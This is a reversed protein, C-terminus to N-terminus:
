DNAHILPMVVWKDLFPLMMGKCIIDQVTHTVFNEEIMCIQIGLQLSNVPEQFFADICKLTTGKITIEDNEVIKNILLYDGNKLLCVNNPLKNTFTFTKYQLQQYARKTSFKPFRFTSISYKITEENM